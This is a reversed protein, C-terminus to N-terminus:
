HPPDQTTWLQRYSRSLPIKSGRKTEIPMMCRHGYREGVGFVYNFISYFDLILVIATSGKPAVQSPIPRLPFNNVGLVSPQRHPLSSCEPIQRLPDEDM